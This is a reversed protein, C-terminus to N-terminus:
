AKDLNEFIVRDWDEHCGLVLAKEYNSNLMNQNYDFHLLEAEVNFQKRMNNKILFLKNKNKKIPLAFPVVDDNKEDKSLGSSTNIVFNLLDKRRNIDEIISKEDPPLGNYAASPFTVTNPLFGYVSEINFQTDLGSSSQNSNKLISYAKNAWKAHLNFLKQYDKDLANFIKENNTILGGGMGSPYIKPLSFITFDGWSVLWEDRHKTFLSHVCCNIIIWGEKRSKVEIAEIEQPFGFQHFVYIARTRPTEVLTPFATKSLASIVCDSLFPPVLVADMRTFGLAKLAFVLAARSSSFPYIKHCLLSELDSFFGFNPKDKTLAKSYGPYLKIQTM